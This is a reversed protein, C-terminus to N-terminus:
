TRGPRRAARRRSACCRATRCSPRASPGRSAPRCRSSLQRSPVVPPRGRRTELRTFGESGRAPAARPVTAARIAPRVAPGGSGAQDPAAPVGPRRACDAAHGGVLRGEVLGDDIIRRGPDEVPHQERQEAGPEAPDDLPGGAPDGPQRDSRELGDEPPDVLGGVRLRRQRREADARQDPQDDRHQGDGVHQHHPDAGALDRQGAAAVLGLLAPHGAALDGRREEVAVLEDQEAPLGALQGPLLGVQGLGPDGLREGALAVRPPGVAVRVAVLEPDVGPEVVVQRAHRVAQEDLAGGRQLLSLVSSAASSRSCNSLSPM